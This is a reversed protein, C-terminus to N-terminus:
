HAENQEGRVVTGLIGNIIRPSDSSGYIKALEVAENISVRQPVDEMFNLEYLSIRLITLDVLPLRDVTWGRLYQSLLQDLQPLAAVIRPIHKRIYSKEYEDFAPSHYNKFNSLLEEVGEDGEPSLALSGEEEASSEFELGEETEGPAEEEPTESLDEIFKELSKGGRLGYLGKMVQAEGEERNQSLFNELVEQSFEDSHTMAFLAQMM